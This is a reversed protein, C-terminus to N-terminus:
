FKHPESRLRDYREVVIYSQDLALVYSNAAVM